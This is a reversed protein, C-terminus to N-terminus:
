GLLGRLEEASFSYRSECFQCSLEARGGTRLLDELEERGLSALGRLMRERSCDCEYRLPRVSLLKAGPFLGQLLEEASAQPDRTLAEGLAGQEHLRAGLRSLEERDGKPLPQILVGAVAGLEEGPLALVELRVRSPLQESAGFYEELERSLEFHRLEVTSRYLEGDLRERLVSLFGANGLAPRFAYAGEGLLEVAPNKVYGRLSGESSADVFLGRLPGDCGLQLNVRTREKQLSALLAGACLAQSLLSASARQLRHLERARRGVVTAVAVTVKLDVSELLASALADAM